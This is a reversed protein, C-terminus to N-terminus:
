EKREEGCMIPNSSDNDNTVQSRGINEIIEIAKDKSLNGKHKAFAQAAQEIIECMAERKAENFDELKKVRELKYMELMSLVSRHERKDNERQEKLREYKKSMEDERKKYQGILVQGAEYKTNQERAYELQEELREIISKQKEQTEFEQVLYHTIDKTPIMVEGNVIVDENRGFVNKRTIVEEESYDVNYAENESDTAKEHEKMMGFLKNLWM